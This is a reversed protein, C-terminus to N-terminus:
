VAIANARTFSLLGCVHYSHEAFLLHQTEMTLGIWLIQVALQTYLERVNIKKKSTGRFSFRLPLFM